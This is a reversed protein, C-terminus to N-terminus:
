NTKTYSLISKPTSKQRLNQVSGGHQNSVNPWVSYMLNIETLVLQLNACRTVKLHSEVQGACENNSRAAGYCQKKHNIVVDIRNDKEADVIERSLM